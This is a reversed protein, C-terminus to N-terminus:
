GADDAPRDLYLAALRPFRRRQEAPDAPDWEDADAAPRPGAREIQAVQQPFDSMGTKAEYVRVAVRDLGAGDVPDGDLGDALSDADALAADYTAQGRGVLWVRFERYAAPGPGQVLHAAGRLDAGDAAAVADEFRAQFAVVAFWPLKELEARLADAHDLGAPRVAADVVAWFHDWDM